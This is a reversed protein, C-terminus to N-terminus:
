PNTPPLEVLWINRYQVPNGHDQLYLGGPGKETRDPAAATPKPAMIGDQITIGNHVVTLTAQKTKQGNSDFRAAHFTIDYTQWQTPPACMNVLPRGVRYIGGCENDRGEMGYSDLIQVEYRGQLYVGSNGRKQGRANPMFPTRFELHLKVDGFKQKSIISGNRPKVEMAGDKLLWPVKGQKNRTPQWKALDEPKGEFLIVANAPPKQGLTPSLRITKKLSFTGAISQGDAMGKFKGKLEQKDIASEIELINGDFGALGNLAITGNELKGQLAFLPPWEYNFDMHFNARYGKQGLAIVQAVLPGSDTEDDLEWTGQWDGMYADASEMDKRAQLIDAQATLSILLFCVLISAIQGTKHKHSQERITM